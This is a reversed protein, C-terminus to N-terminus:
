VEIKKFKLIMYVMSTCCLTGFLSVSVLMWQDLHVYYATFIASTGAFINWQILSLGEVNRTKYSKITQELFGFTFFLGACSGMIQWIDISNM